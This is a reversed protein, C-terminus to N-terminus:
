FGESIRSVASEAKRKTEARGEELTINDIGQLEFGKVIVVDFM